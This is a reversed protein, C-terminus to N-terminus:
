VQDQAIFLAEKQLLCSKYWIAQSGGMADITAFGHDNM